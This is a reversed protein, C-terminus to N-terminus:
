ELESFLSNTTELGLTSGSSLYEDLESAGGENLVNWVGFPHRYHCINGQRWRDGASIWDFWSCLNELIPNLCEHKFKEVDASTIEVQWRMFFYDPDDKIVEGLRAYFEESSEGQPNAKTPKLQKISGKGGSLPRRVVNYVVGRIPGLKGVKNLGSKIGLREWSKDFMATHEYDKLAILYFMTQLDFQLQRAILGEKVDGKTKNEQLYIGVNRGKGILNVSDWKGRLRVTRGSPLQYPINFVQEQLLSKQQRDYSHKRWYDIYMPFQVRCVNFWHEIQSGQMRYKQALIRCHRELATEWREGVFNQRAIAEECLHWMNGYEIRHNFQDIPKLGEVVLLRFRERCVLWRSLLSQTVGDREPGRWIPEIHKPKSVKPKTKLKPM